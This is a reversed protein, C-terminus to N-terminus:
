TVCFTFDGFVPSICDAHLVSQAALVVKGQGGHKPLVAALISNM